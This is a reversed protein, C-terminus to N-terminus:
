NEESLDCIMHQTYEIFDNKEYFSINEDSSSLVELNLEEYGLKLCENKADQLLMNGIGQKRHSKEVVILALYCMKESDFIKKSPFSMEALLYYGIVEDDVKYVFHHHIPQPIIELFKKHFDEFEGMSDEFDLEDSMDIYMQYLLKAVNILNDTLSDDKLYDDRSLKKIM